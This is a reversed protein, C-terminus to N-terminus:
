GQKYATLLIPSTPRNVPIHQFYSWQHHSSALRDKLLALVAATEEEGGKHGRYCTVCLLGNQKILPLAKELSETTDTATTIISKDGGPLYGLNYVIAAVTGPLISDPFTKHSGHVFQVRQMQSERLNRELTSRTASIAAQQIDICFLSGSNDTLAQTALAVSDRGNGCTADIVTDGPNIAQGLLLHAFM